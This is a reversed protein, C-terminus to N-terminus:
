CYRDGNGDSNGEGGVNIYVFSHVWAGACGVRRTGVQADGFRAGTVEDLANGARNVLRTSYRWYQQNNDCLGVGGGIGTRDGYVAPWAAIPRCLHLARTSGAPPTRVAVALTM